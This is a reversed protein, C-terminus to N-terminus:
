ADSREPSDDAVCVSLWTYYSEVGDVGADTLRYVDHIGNREEAVLGHDVLANLSGHFATPDIRTDYAAELESKLRQGRLTGADYLLACIDRRRGSQLWQTM